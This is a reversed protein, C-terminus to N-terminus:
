FDLSIALVRSSTSNDSGNGVEVNATGKPTLNTRKNQKDLYSKWSEPVPGYYARLKDIHAITAKGTPAKKLVFNVENLVAEIRYPGVYFRCWKPTRGQYRRPYYYWVLQGQKFSQIRVNANYNRKMREVQTETHEDVSRFASKLREVLEDAFQNVSPSIDPQPTDLLLDLPCIAERGHMLFYPSFSTAEHRSVNYARVCPALHSTWDRQSESVVKAMLSNLSRHVREIRGNCNPRYSTTRLQTINLLRSMHQFIENQFESGLDSIIQRSMGLSCLVSNM